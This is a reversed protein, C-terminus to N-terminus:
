EGGKNRDVTHQPKSEFFGDAVMAPMAVALGLLVLGWLVWIVTTQGRTIGQAGLALMVMVPILSLFWVLVLLLYGIMVPMQWARPPPGMINGIIPILIVAAFLGAAILSHARLSLM